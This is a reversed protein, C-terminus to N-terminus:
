GAAGVGEDGLEFVLDSGSVGPVRGFGFGVGSGSGCGSGPDAVAEGTEVEEVGGEGVEEFEGLVLVGETASGPGSGSGRPRIPHEVVEESEGVRM